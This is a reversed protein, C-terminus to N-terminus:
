KNIKNLRIKHLKPIRILRMVKIMECLFKRKRLKRKFSIQHTWGLVKIM